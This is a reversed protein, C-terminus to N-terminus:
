FCDIRSTVEIKFLTSRTTYDSVHKVTVKNYVPKFELGASLIKPLPITASLIEYTQHTFYKSQQDQWINESLPSSSYWKVRVVKRPLNFKTFARWISEEKADKSCSLCKDIWERGLLLM